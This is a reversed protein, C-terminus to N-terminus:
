HSNHSESSWFILFLLLDFLLASIQPFFLFMPNMAIVLFLLCWCCIFIFLLFCISFGGVVFFVDYVFLLLFYFLTISFVLFNCNCCCCCLCLLLFFSYFSSHFVQPNMVIYLIPNWCVSTKAAMLPIIV